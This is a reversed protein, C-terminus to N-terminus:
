RKRLAARWVRKEPPLSRGTIRKLARWAESKVSADRHELVNILAHTARRAALKGLANCAMRAIVPDDNALLEILPQTLEDKFLHRASLASIAAVVRPREPSQLERLAARAHGRWWNTESAYWAEWLARRPRIRTSTIQQLAWHANSAVAPHRPDLLEILRPIAGGDSLWGVCLAAQQQKSADKSNLYNRLRSLAQEDRLTRVIRACVTVQALIQREQELADSLLQILLELGAASRQAGVREILAVRLESHLAPFLGHIAEYTAADRELLTDVTHTFDYYLPWHDETPDAGTRPAGLIAVSSLEQATGLYAAISLGKHGLDVVDLPALDGTALWSAFQAPVARLQERLASALEKPVPPPDALSRRLLTEIESRPQPRLLEALARADPLHGEAVRIFLEEIWDQDAPTGQLSTGLSSALLAAATLLLRGPLSSTRRMWRRATRDQGAPTRYASKRSSHHLVEDIQREPVWRSGGASRDM